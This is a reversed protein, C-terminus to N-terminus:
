TPYGMYLYANNISSNYVISTGQFKIALSNYRSGCRISYCRRVLNFECIILENLM